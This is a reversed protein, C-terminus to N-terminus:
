NKVRLIVWINISEAHGPIKEHHFKISKSSMKLSVYSNIQFVNEWSKIVNMHTQTMMQVVYQIVSIEM